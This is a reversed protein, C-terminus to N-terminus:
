LMSLVESLDALRSPANKWREGTVTIYRGSSYAEVAVGGLRTRRGRPLRGRGWVHLGTGSPSVEIYTAPIRALLRAAAPTPRGDVLVHDLDLCVIGDGEALVYGLGVGVTSRKARQYSSWTARSTSSATGGGSQLPVKSAARRVWRGRRTLETPLSRARHRATRCRSSCTVAHRRKILPMPERCRECREM